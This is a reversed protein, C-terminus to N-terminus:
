LYSFIFGLNKEELSHGMDLAGVFVSVLRLLVNVKKVKCMYNTFYVM